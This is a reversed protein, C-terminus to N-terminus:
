SLRYLALGKVKHDHTRAGRHTNQQDCEVFAYALAFVPCAKLKISRALNLALANTPHNQRACLANAHLNLPLGLDIEVPIGIM